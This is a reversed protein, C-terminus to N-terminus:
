GSLFVHGVHWQLRRASAQLEAAVGNPGFDGVFLAELYNLTMSGCQSGLVELWSKM